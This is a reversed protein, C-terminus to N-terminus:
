NKAKIYRTNGNDDMVAFFVIHKIDYKEFAEIQSMDDIIVIRNNPSKDERYKEKTSLMQLYRQEEGKKIKLVEWQKDNVGFSIVMFPLESSCISFPHSANYQRKFDLFVWFADLHNNMRQKHNNFNEMNGYTNEVGKVSPVKFYEACLLREDTVYRTKVSVDAPNAVYLAKDKVMKNIIHSVADKGAIDEFYHWLQEKSLMRMDSVITRIEECIFANLQREALENEDIEKKASLKIISM